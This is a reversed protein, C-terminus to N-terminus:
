RRRQTGRRRRYTKHKNIRGGGEPPGGPLPMIQIKLRNPIRRQLPANWTEEVIEKYADEESITGRKTANLHISWDQRAQARAMKEPIGGGGHGKCKDELSAFAQSMDYNIIRPPTALQYPQLKYHFGAPEEGALACIRGCQTCWRTKGDPGKYKRWLEQHIHAGAAALCDHEAYLDEGAPVFALCIPCFSSGAPNSLLKDLNASEEGVSGKWKPSLLARMEPTKARDLASQGNQSRLSVDAGKEILLKAIDLQNDFAARMLPTVGSIDATNVNAGRELLLRVVDAHRNQSALRLATWGEEEPHDVTAGRDLLLRVVDLQGSSAAVNLATTMSPEETVHNVDAGRDLLLRVAELKGREALNMLPTFGVFNSDNPNAGKELLLTIEPVDGFQSAFLIASDGDDEDKLNPDAGRDLLLRMMETRGEEIAYFLPTMDSDDKENVNAGRDLALRAMDLMNYRAAGQLVANPDGGRELLLTVIEILVPDDRSVDAMGLAVSIATATGGSDTVNPDGGEDLLLQVLAKNGTRIAEMFPPVYYEENNNLLQATRVAGMKAAFKRVTEVKERAIAHFFPSFGSEDMRGPDAGKELLLDIMAPSGGYLVAYHLLTINEMIYEGTEPDGVDSEMEITSEVDAGGELFARMGEVDNTDMMEQLDVNEDM